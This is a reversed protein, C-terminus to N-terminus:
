DGLRHIMGVLVLRAQDLGHVRKGIRVPHSACPLTEGGGGVVPQLPERSRDCGHSRSDPVRQGLQDDEGFSGQAEVDLDGRCDTGQGRRGAAVEIGKGIGGGSEGM